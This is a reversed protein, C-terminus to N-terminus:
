RIVAIAIGGLGSGSHHNIDAGVALCPQICGGLLYQGGSALGKPEM